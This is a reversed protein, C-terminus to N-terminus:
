KKFGFWFNTELQGPDPCPDNYSEEGTGDNNKTTAMSLVARVELPHHPQSCITGQDKPFGQGGRSRTWGDIKVNDM